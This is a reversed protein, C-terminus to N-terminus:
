LQKTLEAFNAFTKRSFKGFMWKSQSMQNCPVPNSHANPLLIIWSKKQDACVQNGLCIAITALWLVHTSVNDTHTLSHSCGRTNQCKWKGAKENWEDVRRNTKYRSQKQKLEWIETLYNKGNKEQHKEYFEHLPRFFWCIHAVFDAFAETMSFVPWVSQSQAMANPVVKPLHDHVAHLM